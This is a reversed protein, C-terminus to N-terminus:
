QTKGGYYYPVIIDNLSCSLCSFLSDRDARDAITCQAWRRVAHICWNCTNCSAQSRTRWKLADSEYTYLPVCIDDPVPAPQLLIVCPISM